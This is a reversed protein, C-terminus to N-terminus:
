IFLGPVLNLAGAADEYGAKDIAEGEVVELRSGYKELEEPTSEELKAGLVVIPQGADEAGEQGNDQTAGDQSSDRADQAQAPAAVVWALRAASAMLAARGLAKM